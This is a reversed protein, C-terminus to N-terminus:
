GIVLESVASFVIFLFLLLDFEGFAFILTLLAALIIFLLLKRVRSSTYLEVIRGGDFFSFPLLNFFALSLNIEFLKDLHAAFSIMALIFNVACGASLIVTQITRSDIQSYKPIIKIGGSYFCIQEPVQSLIIMAFLHGLEHLLCCVLAATIGLSDIKFVFFYFCLAAFFGFYFRIKINFIEIVLM